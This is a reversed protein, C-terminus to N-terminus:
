LYDSVPERSVLPSIVGQVGGGGLFFNVGSTYIMYVCACYLNYIQKTHLEDFMNFEIIQEMARIRLGHEM